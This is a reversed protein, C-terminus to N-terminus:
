RYQETNRHPPRGPPAGSRKGQSLCITGRGMNKEVLPMMRNLAAAELAKSLANILSIPRKSTCQSPDKKPKDLPVIHVELLSKPIIGSIMIANFLHTIIPYLAPLSRYVDIPYTDPGAAKWRGLDGVAKIIETVQFKKFITRPPREWAPRERGGGAGQGDGTELQEPQTLVKQLHDAITNSKELGAIVRRGEVILADACPHRYIRSQRGDERRIYQYIKRLSTHNIGALFDKWDQRIVTRFKIKYGRVDGTNLSNLMEPMLPNDRHFACFKGFSDVGENGGM